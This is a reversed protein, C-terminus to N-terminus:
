TRIQKHVFNSQLKNHLFDFYPSLNWSINEQKNQEIFTLDKIKDWLHIIQAQKRKKKDKWLNIMKILM